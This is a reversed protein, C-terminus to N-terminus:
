GAFHAGHGVLSPESAIVHNAAVQQPRAIKRTKRTDGSILAMKIHRVVLSRDVREVLRSARRYPFLVLQCRSKRATGDQDTVGHSDDVRLTVEM